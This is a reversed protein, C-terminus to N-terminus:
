ILRGSTAKDLFFHIRPVYYRRGDSTLKKIAFAVLLCALFSVYNFAILNEQTMDERIVRRDIITPGICLCFNISFLALVPYM